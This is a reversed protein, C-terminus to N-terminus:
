SKMGRANQHRLIRFSGSSFSIYHVEIPSNRPTLLSATRRLSHAVAATRIVAQLRKERQLRREADHSASLNCKAVFYDRYNPNGPATDIHFLGVLGWGGWGLIRDFTLGYRTVGAILTEEDEPSVLGPYDSVSVLTRLTPFLFEQELRALRHRGKTRKSIPERPVKLKMWALREDATPTEAYKRFHRFEGTIERQLSQFEEELQRNQEERDEVEEM